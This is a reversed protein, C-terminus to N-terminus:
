SQEHKASAEHSLKTTLSLEINVELSHSCLIQLKLNTYWGLDVTADELNVLILGLSSKLSQLDEPLRGASSVSLKLQTSNLQLHEFYYRKSSGSSSPLAPRFILRSTLFQRGTSDSHPSHIGWGRFCRRNAPIIYPLCCICTYCAKCARQVIRDCRVSYIESPRLNRQPVRLVFSTPSSQYSNRQKPLGVAYSADWHLKNRVM